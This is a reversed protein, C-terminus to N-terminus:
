VIVLVEQACLFIGTIDHTHHLSRNSRVVGIVMGYFDNVFDSHFSQIVSHAYTDCKCNM